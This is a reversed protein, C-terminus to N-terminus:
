SISRPLAFAHCVEQNELLLLMGPNMAGVVWPPLARIVSFLWPFQKMTHGAAAISKVTEIWMPSFDPSDLLKRNHNLAILTVIDTALCSYALRLPFPEGSKQFGDIRHCLKDIMYTLMPQVRNVAQKSLFPNLAGRRIRHHRYDATGFSSGPLQFQALYYESKNRPENTSYLKEFYDPEDIHLENPNIRIIPGICHMLQKSFFFFRADCVM